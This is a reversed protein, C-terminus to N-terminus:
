RMGYSYSEDPEETDYGMAENYAGVGHAMGQMHAFESRAEQDDDEEVVHKPNTEEFVRGDPGEVCAYAWNRNRPNAQLARLSAMAEESTEHDSGTWCDDQQLDKHSGWLEASYKM